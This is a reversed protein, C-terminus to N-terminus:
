IQLNNNNKKRVTETPSFPSFNLEHSLHRVEMALLEIKCDGYSIGRYSPEPPPLSLPQPSLATIDQSKDRILGQFPVVDSSMDERSM